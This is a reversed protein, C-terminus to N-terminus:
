PMTRWIDPIVQMIAFNKQKVRKCRFSANALEMVRHVSFVKLM